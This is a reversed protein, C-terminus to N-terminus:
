LFVFFVLYEMASLIYFINCFLSLIHAFYYFTLYESTVVKIMANESKEVYGNIEPICEKIFKQFIWYSFYIKTGNKEWILTIPLQNGEKLYVECTDSLNYHALIQAAM